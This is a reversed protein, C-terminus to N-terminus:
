ASKGWDIKPLSRNYQKSVDWRKREEGKTNILVDSLSAGNKVRARRWFKYWNLDDCIRNNERKKEWKWLTNGQKRHTKKTIELDNLNAEKKSQWFWRTLTNEVEGL